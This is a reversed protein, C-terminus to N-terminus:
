QSSQIPKQPLVISFTTPQGPISDVLLTGSHRNVIARTLALGLGLGRSKTTFLPEAIRELVDAPVGPGSDSVSIVMSPGTPGDTIQRSRVEITGSQGVAEVANTLINRLAIHLQASDVQVVLNDEPQTFNWVKVSEPIALDLLTERVLLDIRIPEFRPPKLRAFDTLAEIVRSALRVQRQMRQFHEETHKPDRNPSNQLIYLSTQIVNLPNRLEHAIGGSIQGLTALRESQQLRRSSELSYAYQILSLDLDLAKGISAVMGVLETVRGGCRQGLEVAIKERLRAMAVNTYVAELGLEVHRKGVAIRRDIYAQDYEANFLQALWTRLTQKLREIQAAGGRIAARTRDHRQIQDYFDDVLVDFAPAVLSSARRINAIDAETLGVYDALHRYLAGTDEFNMLLDLEKSNRTRVSAEFVSANQM